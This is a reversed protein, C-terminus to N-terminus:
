KAKKQEKKYYKRTYCFSYVNADPKLMHQIPLIIYKKQNSHNTKLDPFKTCFPFNNISQLQTSKQPLIPIQGSGNANGTCKHNTKWVVYKCRVYFPLSQSQFPGLHLKFFSTLNHLLSIFSPEYQNSGM